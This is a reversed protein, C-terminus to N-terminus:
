HNKITFMDDIMILWRTHRSLWIYIMDWEIVELSILTLIKYICVFLHQECSAHFIASIIIRM